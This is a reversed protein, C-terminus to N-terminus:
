QLLNPTLTILAVTPRNYLRFQMYWPYVQSLGLGPSIYQHIGYLTTMGSLQNDKPFWGGSGLESTIPARLAGVLPLRVQGGNYHGSLILSIPYEGESLGRVRPPNSLSYTSQQIPHHTLVIYVDGPLMEARAARIRAVRDRQYDVAATQARTLTNDEQEALMAGRANLTNELVDIDLSIVSEPCFWITTGNSVVKYPADLYVFNSKQEMIELLWDAYATDNGHPVAIIPDPDEDGPVFLIPTNDSLKTVLDRFPTMDGDKSIMDGTICVISYGNNKWALALDSQATGFQAGHLDSIHLIRYNGGLRSITLSVKDLMVSGNSIANLLLAVALALVIFFLLFRLFPHRNKEQGFLTHKRRYAM